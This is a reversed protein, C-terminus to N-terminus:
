RCYGRRCTRRKGKRTSTRSACRLRRALDGARTVSVTGGAGRLAGGSPRVRLAEEGSSACVVEYGLSVLSEECSARQAASEEVLLVLPPDGDWTAVRRRLTPADHFRRAAPSGSPRGTAPPSSPSQVIGGGPRSSCDIRWPQPKAARHGPCAIARPHPSSGPLEMKATRRPPPSEGGTPAFSGVLGRSARTSATSGSGCAAATAGVGAM